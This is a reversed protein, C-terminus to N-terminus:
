KKLKDKFRKNFKEMKPEIVLRCYAQGKNNAYYDRHYEEAKYFTQYPELKTIIPADYEGKETLKNIMKLATERQKLSHYFIVSRYQPGVDAGQRDLTTPDHTYFFIELIEMFTVVEPNFVLQVVEAHRTRGTSVMSYNATKAEGGSYGSEVSEVGELSLFVAETCWFCGGGLTAVQM